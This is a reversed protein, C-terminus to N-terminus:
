ISGTVTLTTGTRGVYLQAARRRQRQHTATNDVQFLRCRRCRDRGRARGAGTQGALGAGPHLQGSRSRRGGAGRVVGHAPGAALRSPRLAARLPRPRPLPRRDVREIGRERLAAAWPRFAGFADGGYERGSIQPDGAGVVGLDGRLVGGEVAGRMLLRTEFLYGPGLADLAAATTFLKTNSAIVRPEDPNYAYVTEGTDLEVVHVGMTATDRSARRM